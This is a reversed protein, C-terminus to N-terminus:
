DAAGGSGSDPKRQLAIRFFQFLVTFDAQPIYIASFPSKGEAGFLLLILFHAPLSASQRCM